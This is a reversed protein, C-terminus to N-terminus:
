EWIEKGFADAPKRKEDPKDPNYTKDMIYIVLATKKGLVKYGHWIKPPIKILRPKKEELLFEKIKGNEEKTCFKIKGKICCVFDTQKEHM